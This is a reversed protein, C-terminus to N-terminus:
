KRYGHSYNDEHLLPQPIKATAEVQKQPKKRKLFPKVFVNEKQKEPHIPNKENAENCFLPAAGTTNSHDVNYDHGEEAESINSSKDIDNLNEEINDKGVEPKSKTSRTIKRTIGSTGYGDSYNDEHLSTQPRKATAKLLKQPSTPKLSIKVFEDKKQENRDIPNKEIPEQCLLPTVISTASTTNSNDVDYDDGEEAELSNISTKRIDIDKLKEKIDYNVNCNDKSPESNLKTSRTTKRTIRSTRHGDSYNDEHLSTQPSKATAKWQKQPSKPKLSLNVFEDKKQKNPNMEINEQCLVTTVQSIDEIRNTNNSSAYNGDKEEHNNSSIMEEAIGNLEDEIDNGNDIDTSAKPTLRISRTTKRTIRLSQQKAPQANNKRTQKSKSLMKKPMRQRTVRIHKSEPARTRQSKGKFKEGRSKTKATKANGIFVKDCVSENPISLETSVSLSTNDIDIDKIVEGDGNSNSKASNEVQTQRTTRTNYNLKKSTHELTEDNDKDHLKRDDADDKKTKSRNAEKKSSINSSEKTDRPIAKRSLSHLDPSTDKPNSEPVDISHLSKQKHSKGGQRHSSEKLDEAAANANIEKIVAVKRKSKNVSNLRDSDKRSKSTMTM